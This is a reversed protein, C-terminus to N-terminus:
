PMKGAAGRGGKGPRSGGLYADDMEVRGSLQCRQEEREKMVQMLKHKLKWATNYSVGLRRGLEMASVENKAQTLHYLASFWTTLPLKTSHFITDATLSTQTRCQACQYLARATILYARDHQCRPCVFGKPWRWKALAQVCQEESGYLERFAPESLGKQFQVQNRAM